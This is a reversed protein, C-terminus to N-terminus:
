IIILYTVILYQYHMSVYDLFDQTASLICFHFEVSISYLVLSSFNEVPCHFCAPVLYIIHSNVRGAPLATFLTTNEELQAGTHVELYSATLPVASTHATNPSHAHM